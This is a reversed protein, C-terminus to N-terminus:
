PREIIYGIGVGTWWGAGAGILTYAYPTVPCFPNLDGDCPKRDWFVGAHAAYGILGGAIAGIVAYPLLRKRLGAGEPALPPIPRSSSFSLVAQSNGDLPIGPLPQAEWMSAPSPVLAEGRVFGRDMMTKQGAAPFPTLFLLSAFLAPAASTVLRAARLPTAM